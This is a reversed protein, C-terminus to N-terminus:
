QGERAPSPASVDAAAPQQQPPPGGDLTSHVVLSKSNESYSITRILSSPRATPSSTFVVDDTNYGYDVRHIGSRLSLKKSLRYSVQLGYSMNVTGSKSNDLFNSAIPSGSGFSNFYVPALSPGVSWKGEQRETEAVAEQPELAELISKKPLEKREPQAEEKETNGPDKTFRDTPSDAIADAQEPSPIGPEQSRGQEAVVGNSDTLARDRTESATVAIRDKSQAEQISDAGSPRDAKGPASVVADMEGPTAALGKVGGPLDTSDTSAETTGPLTKEAPESQIGEEVPTQQPTATRSVAPTDTSLDERPALWFFGALIVAAAAGLRLWLPILRGKKKKQDLSDRVRDWVRPDPAERYDGLKDQIMKDLDKNDM